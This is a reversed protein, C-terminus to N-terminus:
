SLSRYAALLRHSSGMFRLSGRRIFECCCFAGARRTRLHCSPTPDSRPMPLTHRVTIRDPGVLVERVVLRVVRQHDSISSHDANTRLRTLFSELNEALQLYYERDLQQVDVARLHGQLGAQRQREHWTTRSLHYGCSECILLGQLLTPTRTRRAAFQKNLQLRRAAQAFQDESIVAPVAVEIWESRPRERLAARVV